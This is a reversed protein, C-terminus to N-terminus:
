KEVRGIGALVPRLDSGDGIALHEPVVDDADFELISQMALQGTGDLFGPDGSVSPLGPLFRLKMAFNRRRAPV